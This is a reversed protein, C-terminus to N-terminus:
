FATKLDLRTKLINLINTTDVQKFKIENGYTNIDSEEFEINEIKNNIKTVSDIFYRNLSEAFELENEM